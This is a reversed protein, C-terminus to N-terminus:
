EKITDIVVASTINGGKLTFHAQKYYSIRNSRLFEIRDKFSDETENKLLPRNQSQKSIRNAIEKSPVDLFIVTGSQKMLEINNHFCPAGGGTAMVFTQNSLCFDRLVNKEVERFNAEGRDKFIQDIRKGEHKEIEADLDIFTLQLTKAAEKALTTKGSGPLGILFIKKM